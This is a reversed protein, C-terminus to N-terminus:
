RLEEAYKEFLMELAEDMLDPGSRKNANAKMAGVLRHWKALNTTRIRIGMQVREIDRAPAGSASPNVVDGTEAQEAARAAEEQMWDPVENGKAM